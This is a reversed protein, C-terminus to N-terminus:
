VLKQCLSTALNSILWKIELRSLFFFDLECSLKSSRVEVLIMQQDLEEPVNEYGFGM